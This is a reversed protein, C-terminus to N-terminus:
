KDSSNVEVFPVEENKGSIFIQMLRKASGNPHSNGCEWAEVTKKSVGMYKAFMSQTYGADVRMKKIEDKHFDNLPTIKIHTVRGTKNGKTIEVAEELATKLGEFLESMTPKRERAPEISLTYIYIVLPKISDMM